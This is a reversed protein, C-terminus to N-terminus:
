AAFTAETRARGKAPDCRTQIRARGVRVVGWRRPRDQNKQHTICKCNVHGHPLRGYGKVHVIQSLREEEIGNVVFMHAVVDHGEEVLVGGLGTADRGFRRLQEVVLNKATYIYVCVSFSVCVSVYVCRFCFPAAPTGTRCRSGNLPGGLAVAWRWEAVAAGEM